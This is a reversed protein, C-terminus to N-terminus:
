ETSTKGALQLSPEANAPAKKRRWAEKCGGWRVDEGYPFLQGEATPHGRRPM